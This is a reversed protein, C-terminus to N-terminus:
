NFGKLFKKRIELFNQYNLQSNDFQLSEYIKMFKEDVQEISAPLSSYDLTNPRLITTSPQGLIQLAISKAQSDQQTLIANNDTSVVRLYEDSM